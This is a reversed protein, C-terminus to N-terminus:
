RSQHTEEAPHLMAEPSLIAEIQAADLLNKEKALSLVSRDTALAEKAIAAAQEYGIYPLLATVIGISHEVM